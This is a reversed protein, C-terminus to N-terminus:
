MRSVDMRRKQSLSLSVSDDKDKSEEIVNSSDRPLPRDLTVKRSQPPHDKKTSLVRDLLSDPEQKPTDEFTDYASDRSSRDVM